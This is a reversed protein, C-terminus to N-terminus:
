ARGELELEVRYLIPQHERLRRAALRAYDEREEILVVEDWGAELAGIGTSGSGGFPDLLRRPAGDEREPPLALAALWQMLDTPKVTPHPNDRGRRSGRARGSFFFRSPRSSETGFLEDLLEAGGADLALNAPWRPASSTGVSRSRGGVGVEHRRGSERWVEIGPRGGDECPIAAGKVNFGAVGHLEANVAYTGELPRRAVVIPEVSPKLKTAHGAWRAGAATAPATIALERRPAARFGQTGQALPRTRSTDVNVVSGVVPRAAWAAGKSGKRGNLEVLLERVRPPMEGEAIGLVGLLAPVQELTPVAPQSGASTWHGAMGRFGFAADLEANTVGAADRAGRIWSTVELVEALEHRRAEVLKDLARAKPNGDATLWYIADLIEWGADEVAVGLRHALRPIGFAFLLGGPRVAELLPRWYDPGPVARDWSEGLLSIGYPPDCVVADFLGELRPVVARCDGRIVRALTM